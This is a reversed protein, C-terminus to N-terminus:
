RAGPGEALAGAKKSKLTTARAETISRALRFESKYEGDWQVVKSASAFSEISKLARANGYVLYANSPVYTVVKVGTKILADYWEDKIPGAFQILRMRKGAFSGASGRTAQGESKTDIAGANLQIVNDEDRLQVQSDSNLSDLTSSDTEYIKFTDYDAVLTAGQSEIKRATEDDSVQVKHRNGPSRYTHQPSQASTESIQQKSLDPRQAIGVPLLLFPLAIAILAIMALGINRTLSNALQPAKLNPLFSRKM